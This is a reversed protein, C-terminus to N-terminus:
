NRIIKCIILKRIYHCCYYNNYISLFFTVIKLKTSLALRAEITAALHCAQLRESLSFFSACNVSPLEIQLIVDQTWSRFHFICYLIIFIRLRDSIGAFIRSFIPSATIKQHNGLILEALGSNTSSSLFIIRLTTFLSLNNRHIHKPCWNSAFDNQHSNARISLLSIPAVLIVSLKVQALSLINAWSLVLKEVIEHCELLTELNDSSIVSRHLLAVQNDWTILTPSLAHHIWHCGSKVQVQVIPRTLSPVLPIILSNFSGSIIILQNFPHNLFLEVLATSPNKLFTTPIYSNNIAKYWFIM